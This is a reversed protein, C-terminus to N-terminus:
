APGTTNTLYFPRIVVHVASFRGAPCPFSAARQADPVPATQGRFDSVHVVLHQEGCLMLAKNDYAVGPAPSGSRYLGVAPLEGSACSFGQSRCSDLSRLDHLTWSLTRAQFLFSPHQPTEFYQPRTGTYYGGYARHRYHGGRGWPSREWGQTPTASTDNISAGWPAATYLRPQYADQTLNLGRHLALAGHPVTHFELAQLMRAQLLAEHQEFLALSFRLEFLEQPQLMPFRVRALLEATQRSPARQAQSWADLAKLLALESPVALESRPLLAQLLTAPVRPWAESEALAQFNWALFQLCVGELVPDRSALGYSYLDLATQFSPDEPLVVAFLRGCHAQLRPAEYASALKHFCKVTAISVDLRRSYLYRIFDRVVPLCEPDVELTVTGDSAERLLAQAEPNTALVLRHACLDPTEPGAARVRISVDCDKQSDFLLELAARLEGSLDLTHSSSTRNACIVGADEEHKCNSLLWGQSKCDALSEETGACELEDLLVPGSGPGFAARPLAQAAAPFGLARCVVGADRLDWQDDCVTGWQGRYFIEVRGENARKGGALRVDGDQAGWVGTLLLSIWLLRAPVMARGPHGQGQVRCASM